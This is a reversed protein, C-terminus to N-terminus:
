KGDWQRMVQLRSWPIKSMHYYDWALGASPYADGAPDAIPNEFAFSLRAGGKDTCFAGYKQLARGVVLEARTIGPIADLNVAPDLRIRAGEPITMSLPIGAMNSGDTKNAPFRFSQPTVGNSAFGLAHDINGARIERTRILGGLGSLGSGKSSGGNLRENGIGDYVNPTIQGWSASWHTRDLKKLQWFEYIRGTSLEIVAAHGDTGANAKLDAPIPVRQSGFPNPGWKKTVTVAVRPTSANAYYVPWGYDYLSAIQQRTGGSLYRVIAKSNRDLVPNAPLPTNFPSSPRWPRGTTATFTPQV